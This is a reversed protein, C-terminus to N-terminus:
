ERSRTRQIRAPMEYIYRLLERTLRALEEAEQQPVDALPDYHAGANAVVRIERAWEALSGDLTRDEAMATLASALNRELRRKAEESGRDAVLAELTRRFMVVAARPARVGLARAGESYADRIGEPIVPDLDGSHPAPWWHLGRWTITGGARIGERAPHDGIWEEEVVVTCQQCGQCLLASVQDSWTPTPGGAGISTGGDFTVPLSGVVTFSSTRGCRPCPGALDSSDPPTDPNAPPVRGGRDDQPSRSEFIPM